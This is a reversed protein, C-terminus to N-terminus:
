ALRQAIRQASARAQQDLALLDDLSGPKSVPVSSLTELNLAHIQDFRIRRELFQAVAVENAANLVATTGAPAELAEWALRLGPFREPHGHDDIAEFTMAGLTHFDLAAAGSEVREPWALGYAIPVRMDPTGLQAVVSTDTYQVMSHIISQPHIVVDLKRPALGFLYRAEIVELAKNMMTASDVSIKRGMVWNPHACAMEPTVAALEDLPKRRFPGGSATLLIRTVEVGDVGGGFGAPLAQFIANHESDIPLLTAGSAAVERMFLAGSMVLAEKNALLVRKGARAAALTPVMGAAGVIAAMVMHVEPAASVEALATPGALVETCCGAAELMAQLRQADEARDVVAYAPRHVRCQEFLKDVQRHATLAFVGYRDPHRAVVDLTSVGISGTAGLVTLLKKGQTM